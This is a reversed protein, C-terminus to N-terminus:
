LFFMEAATGLDSEPGNEYDGTYSIALIDDESSLTEMYDTRPMLRVATLAFLLLIAASTIVVAPRLRSLYYRAYALVTEPLGFRAPAAGIEARIKYWVESPPEEQGVARFLKGAARLEEVLAHCDQCSGLHLELEELARGALRGDVYDTLILEKMKKCNM